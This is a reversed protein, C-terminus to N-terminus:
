TMGGLPHRRDRLPLSVRQGSLGAAFVALAMELAKMGAYGSCVPSRDRAIAELWDDVVRGNALAFGRESQTLKLTPDQSWVRWDESPKDEAATLARVFIRPIMETLIKVAGKTGVLELGWPGAQTRASARSTFTARVGEGLHYEAEIDDGAIPGINESARHVDAPTIAHGAQRVQASCDHADGAFFRMLDFLHVGLVLLDEGGARHDQKGHSRIERLEGILGQALAHKLALINPALRMQHAVAIKLGKRHSLALLEDAEALSQTFPKEMYVHAGVRLAALAMDHHQDTWRPAVCVLQPREQELMLRYDAYQRAARSREVAKARGAEDPDAVAVVRIGERGNFILDHEHGYNGHGTHGIIAARLETSGARKSDEALILPHATWAALAASQALFRRRTVASSSRIRVKTLPLMRRSSNHVRACFFVLGLQLNGSLEESKGVQM